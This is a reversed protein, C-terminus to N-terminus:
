AENEEKQHIKCACDFKLGNSLGENCRCKEEFEEKMEEQETKM